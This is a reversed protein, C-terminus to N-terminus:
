SIKSPDQQKHKPTIRRLLFEQFIDYIATEGVGIATSEFVFGVRNRDNKPYYLNAIGGAALSGAVYSYNPEWHGNDGKCIVSNALAYLLRSRKTGTGKYFYRPDQKLVSPLVASGILTSSVLDGYSAGFRKGFGAAGQGYGKFEDNAQEIGAVVGNLTFTFPDILTRWALEFKQRSNLPAADPVYSVYFNPMLAFVRQKEETKVQKQAVEARPPEVRVSTIAPAVHLTIQPAVYYEGPLLVDSITQPALDTAAVTLEFPGAEVNLFSFQGDEGVVQQIAQHNRVVLTVQAGAVIAGSQDVVRGSVTGPAAPEVPQKSEQKAGDGIQQDVGPASNVAAPPQKVQAAPVESQATAPYNGLLAYCGLCALIVFLKRCQRKWLHKHSRKPSNVHGM